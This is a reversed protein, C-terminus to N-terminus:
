CCISPLLPLFWYGGLLLVGQPIGTLSSETTADATRLRFQQMRFHASVACAVVQASVWATFLVMPLIVRKPLGRVCGILFYLPFSMAFVVFAICAQIITLTQSEIVRGFLAAALSVLGDLLFLYIYTNVFKRM